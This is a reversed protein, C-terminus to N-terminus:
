GNGKCKPEVMQTMVWPKMTTTTYMFVMLRAILNQEVKKGHATNCIVQDVM